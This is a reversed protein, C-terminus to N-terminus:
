VDTDVHRDESRNEHHGGIETKLKRFDTIIWEPKECGAGAEVCISLAHNPLKKYEFFRYPMGQYVMRAGSREPIVSFSSLPLRLGEGHAKVFSEKMTWIRFFARERRESGHRSFIYKCEEKAFFRAAVSLRGTSYRQTDCGAKSGGILCVAYNGSHSLSFYVDSAKTFFPKGFRDEATECPIGERKAAYMLLAGAALSRRKEAPDQRKGIKERRKEPVMRYLFDYLEPDELENVDAIYVRLRM